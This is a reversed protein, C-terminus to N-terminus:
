AGGEPCPLDSLDTIRPRLLAQAQDIPGFYGEILYVAGTSLVFGLAIALVFELAIEKFTM